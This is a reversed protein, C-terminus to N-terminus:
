FCTLALFQKIINVRQRFLAQLTVLRYGISDGAFIFINIRMKHVLQAVAYAEDNSFHSLRSTLPVLQKCHDQAAKIEEAITQTDIECNM